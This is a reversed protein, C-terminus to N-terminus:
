VNNKTKKVWNIFHRKIDKLDRFHTEKAYIEKLYEFLWRKIESESALATKRAKILWEGSNILEAYLTEILEKSEEETYLWDYQSKDVLINYKGIEELEKLKKNKIDIDNSSHSLSNKKKINSEKKNNDNNDNNDNNTTTLVKNSSQQYKTILKNTQTNSNRNDQQYTDYNCVTVITFKMNTHTNIEQTKKLKTLSTRTNQMSLGTEKALNGISTVFQGRKITHGRWKKNKHNAKLLCHLFITKVKVDTYWEWEYFKRHLQIWGEM